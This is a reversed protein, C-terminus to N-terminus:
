FKLANEQLDLINRAGKRKRLINNEPNEKFSNEAMLINSSNVGTFDITTKVMNEHAKMLNQARGVNRSERLRRESIAVDRKGKNQTRLLNAMIQRYSNSQQNNKVQSLAADYRKNEEFQRLMENHDRNSNPPYRLPARRRLIRRPQRIRPDLVKALGRIASVRNGRSRTVKSKRLRRSAIRKAQQIDSRESGSSLRFERRQVLTTNDASM